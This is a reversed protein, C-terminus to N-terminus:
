EDDSAHRMRWSSILGVICTSIIVLTPIAILTIPNPTFELKFVYVAMLYSALTAMSIGAFSAMSGLALFESIMIRNIQRRTAGLVKLLHDEQRRVYRGASVAGALVILGTAVSFMAMFRIVFTFKGIISDVSEVVTRLDISTVNPYEAVVANQLRASDAATPARTVIAFFQPAKELVGAPFIVFFNGRMQRWDVERLSAVYVPIRVGQVDFELRDGLTVGLSEAIGDELSVPVPGEANDARGIWEGEVFVDFSRPQERYTSRYERFLAWSPINKSPDDRLDNVPVGKVARLRMTVIPNMEDEKLGTDHLIARVGELQDPQINFVYMNPRDNNDASRFRNLLNDQTMSIMGLLFVGFGLSILLVTTQNDPRYLRAVGQRIVFPWGERLIRRAGWMLVRAVAALLAFLVLLSSTIILAHLIKDTHLRVLLFLVFTMVLLVAGRAFDRGGGADQASDRIAVLPPLRRLPLLPLLSFLFAMVAGFVLGGLSAQWSWGAPVEVPIVDRLVYPLAWQLGSGAASGVLAGLFAAGMMQVLYILFASWADAGLCRLVSVTVRKKRVYLQVAGALGIGGLLLATLGGLSMYRYLQNLSEGLMAKRDTATESRLQVFNWDPKMRAQLASASVEPPLLHYTYYRALSDDRLLGTKEADDLAIFIRPGMFMSTAPTEGSISLLRGAIVFDQEGLRLVDGVELGFQIMLSDEVIASLPTARYQLAAEPPETIMEGYFPYPGSMARIQSLRSSEQEPFVAMSFFRTERVTEGPVQQILAEMDPTFSRTASLMLDAGLLTKIQDEIARDLRQGFSLIAVMAGIGLSIALISLLLHARSGRSDRWAMRLIWTMRGPMM